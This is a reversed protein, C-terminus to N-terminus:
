RIFMKDTNGIRLYINGLAQPANLFTNTSDTLLSYDAGDKWWGAYNNGYTPHTGMM